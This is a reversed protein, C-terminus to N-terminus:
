LMDTHVLFPMNIDMFVIHYQKQQLMDLAELGNAAFDATCGLKDLMKKVLRQNMLNDEVVLIAVGKQVLVSM